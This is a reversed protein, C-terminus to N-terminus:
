RLESAAGRASESGMAASVAPLSAREFRSRYVIPQINSIATINIRHEVFLTQRREDVRYVNTGYAQHQKWNVQLGADTWTWSSAFDEGRHDKAVVPEEGLRVPRRSSGKGDSVLQHLREGDWVFRMEPPPATSKRLVGAGMKRVIWSMDDLAVEISALRAPETEETDISRWLGDYSSLDASKTASETASETASQRESALNAASSDQDAGALAPLETAFGESGVLALFLAILTFSRAVLTAISRELTSSSWHNKNM